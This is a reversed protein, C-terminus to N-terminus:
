ENEGGHQNKNKNIKLSFTSKSKPCRFLLLKYNPFVNIDVFEYEEVNISYFQKNLENNRIQAKQLIAKKLEKLTLPHVLTKTM